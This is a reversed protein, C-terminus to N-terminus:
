KGLAKRVTMRTVEARRALDAESGDHLVGGGRGDRQQWARGSSAILAGTLAAHAIQEEARANRWDGAVRELADGGRVVKVAANLAAAHRADVGGQWRARIKAWADALDRQQDDTLTDWVDGLIGIPDTSM